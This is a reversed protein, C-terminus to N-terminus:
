TATSFSVTISNSKGRIAWEEHKDIGNKIANLELLCERNETWNQSLIENITNTANVNRLYFADPGIQDYGMNIAETVNVLLAIMQSFLLLLLPFDIKLKAM